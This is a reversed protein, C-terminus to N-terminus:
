SQENREYKYKCQICKTYLLFESCDYEDKYVPFCIGGYKRYKCNDCPTEMLINQTRHEKLKILFNKDFISFSGNVKPCLYIRGLPNIYASNLGAGCTSKTKSPIFEQDIAEIIKEKTNNACDIEKHGIITTYLRYNLKNKDAFLKIDEIERENYKNLVTKIKVKIGADALKLINEKVHKMQDITKTFINYTKDSSGYLTIYM